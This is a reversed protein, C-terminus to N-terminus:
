GELKWRGASPQQSALEGKRTYGRQGGPCVRLEWAHRLLSGVSRLDHRLENLMSRLPAGGGSAEKKVQEILTIAGALEATSNDLAEADPRELLTLVRAVKARAEGTLESRHSSTM